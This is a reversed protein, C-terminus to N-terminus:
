EHSGKQKNAAQREKSRNGDRKSLSLDSEVNASASGGHGGHEDTNTFRDLNHRCNRRNCLTPSSAVTDAPSNSSSAVTDATNRRAVTDATNHRVVTDAMNRHAVTDVTNHSAVL